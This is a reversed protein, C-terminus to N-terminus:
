AHAVITVKIWLTPFIREKLNLVLFEIVLYRIHGPIFPEFESLDLSRKYALRVVLIQGINIGHDAKVTSISISATESLAYNNFLHLVLRILSKLQFVLFMVVSAYLHLFGVDDCNILLRLSLDFVFWDFDLCLGLGDFGLHSEGLSNGDLEVIFITLGVVNLGERLFNLDVDLRFM